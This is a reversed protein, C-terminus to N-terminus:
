PDKIQRKLREPAIIKISEGLGLIEKELEFNLQVQMSFTVGYNDREVVKQTKHFPKTIVYPAHKHNVYFVVNEVDIHPSVSVGIVNKYYTKSDFSSETVYSKPSKKISVIRDLVLNM